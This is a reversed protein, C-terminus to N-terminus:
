IRKFFVAPALTKGKRLHSHISTVAWTKIYCCNEHKKVFYGTLLIIIPIYQLKDDAGFRISEERLLEKM